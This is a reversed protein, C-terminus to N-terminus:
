SKEGKEAGRGSGHGHGSSSVRRDLTKVLRSRKEELAEPSLQAFGYPDNHAALNSDKLDVDEVFEQGQKKDLSNRPSSMTRSPQDHDNADIPSTTESRM